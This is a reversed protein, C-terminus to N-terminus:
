AEELDAYVNITNVTNKLVWPYDDEIMGESRFNLCKFQEEEGEILTTYMFEKLDESM